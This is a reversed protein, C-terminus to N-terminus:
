TFFPDTIIRLVAGMTIRRKIGFLASIQGAADPLFFMGTEGLTKFDAIYTANKNVTKLDL